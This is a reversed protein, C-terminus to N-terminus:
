VLAMTCSSPIPLNFFFDIVENPSSGTVKWSTAYHRFWSCALCTTNYVSSLTFALIDVFNCLSLLSHSCLTKKIMNKSMLCSFLFTRFSFIILRTKTKLVLVLSRPKTWSHVIGVSCSSSTLKTGVKASLPHGMTLM